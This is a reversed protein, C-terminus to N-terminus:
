PGIGRHAQLGVLPISARTYKAFTAPSAGTSLPLTVSAQELLGLSQPIGAAPSARYITLTAITDTVAALYYTGRALVTDAVDVVQMAVSVSPVTSGASVLLNGNPDYIGIDCLAGANPSGIGLMLKTVVMPGAVRFPVYIVLGAALWAASTPTQGMRMLALGLSHESWPTITVEGPRALMPPQFDLM